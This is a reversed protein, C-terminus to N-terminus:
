DDAHTEITADTAVSDIAKRPNKRSKKPPQPLTDVLTRAALRIAAARSGLRYHDSIRDLDSLTDEGLRFQRPVTANPSPQPM